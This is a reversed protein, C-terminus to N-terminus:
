VDWIDIQTGNRCKGWQWARHSFACQFLFSLNLHTQPEYLDVIAAM